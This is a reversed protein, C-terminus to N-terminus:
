RECESTGAGSPSREGPNASFRSLEHYANGLNNKTGAWEKPQEAKTYVGLAENFVAIAEQIQEGPNASFRASKYYAVGLHKNFAAWEQPQEEKTYVGLADIIEAIAEQILEGPNASFRALALYALGLNNKTAAWNQPQEARSCVRLADIFAAIAKQIQEGPNASFHAFELHAIGLDNNIRGWFQPDEAKTYVQLANKYAAIAIQQNAGPSGLPFKNLCNGLLVLVAAMAQKQVQEEKALVGQWGQNLLRALEINLLALNTKLLPFVVKPDGKSDTTTQLLQILFAGQEESPSLSSGVADALQRLFATIQQACHELFAAAEQKGYQRMSEAYRGMMEVLGEDVLGREASLISNAKERAGLLLKDILAVYARQREEDIPEAPNAPQHDM